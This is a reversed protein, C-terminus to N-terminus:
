KILIISPEVGKTKNLFTSFASGDRRTSYVKEWNYLKYLM